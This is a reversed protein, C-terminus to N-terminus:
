VHDLFKNIFADFKTNEPDLAQEKLSAWVENSQEYPIVKEYLLDRESQALQEELRREISVFELHQAFSLSIFPIKILLQITVFYREQSLINQSFALFQDEQDVILNIKALVDDESNLESIAATTYPLLYKKFWFDDEEVQLMSNKYTPYQNSLNEFKVCLILSTNKEIDRLQSKVSIMLNYVDEATYGVLSSVEIFQVLYYEIENRDDPAFLIINEAAAAETFGSATFIKSILEKM